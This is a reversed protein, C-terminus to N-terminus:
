GLPEALLARWTVPGVVGDPTLGHDRQFATVHREALLEDAGPGHPLLRRLVETAATPRVHFPGRLTPLDIIAGDPDFAAGQREEPMPTLFLEREAARRLVLGQLVRPGARNWRPFEDAAGERDGGNLKRLLTSRRLADAGVNFAFSVLADFQHQNILVDVGQTVAAEFRVLDERLFAEAQAETIRQGPRVGQTHGWGITWMGVADQYAALRLSEFRKIIALGDAGIKM